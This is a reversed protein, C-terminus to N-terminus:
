VGSLKRSFESLMISVSMAVNLSDITNGSQRGRPISLRSSVYEDLHQSIGKSENGFLIIGREPPNHDYM